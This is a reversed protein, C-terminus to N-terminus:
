HLQGLVLSVVISLFIWLTWKWFGMWCRKVYVMSQPAMSILKDPLQAGPGSCEPTLLYRLGQGLWVLNGGM